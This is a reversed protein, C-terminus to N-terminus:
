RIIDDIKNRNEWGQMIIDSTESLTKGAKFIGKYVAEQERLCNEVYSESITLSGISKALTNEIDGFESKPATIGTILFGYGIGAGPGGTFPLMPAVTVLFLGEGLSGGEIFVARILETSGGTIPSPHSAKSIVQIALVLAVIGFSISLLSLRKMIVEKGPEITM